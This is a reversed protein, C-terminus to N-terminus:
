NGKVTVNLCLIFNYKYLEKRNSACFTGFIVYIKHCFFLSLLFISNAPCGYIEWLYVCDQHLNKGLPDVLLLSARLKQM